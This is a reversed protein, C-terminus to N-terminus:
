KNQYSLKKELPRRAQQKTRTDRLKRLKMQKDHMTETLEALQRKAVEEDRPTYHTAVISMQTNLQQISEQLTRIDCYLDQDENAKRMEVHILLSALELEESFHNKLSVSRYGTNLCPIPIVAQALDVPDGFVDLDQIVFRLMTCEPNNVDFDFKSLWVPNYGNTEVQNTKFKNQDSPMGVVELEVLPSAVGRGHKIIHRAGIITIIVTIPETKHTESLFPNFDNQRLLCDPMLVYGCKGNQLFKGENLQMSRDPTQYNLAVLQSGACWMPTPDYNTSELRRGNPYVRSMKIRSYIVFNRANDKNKVFREMKSEVFSSMQNFRGKTPNEIEFDKTPQCYIVIDSMEQAIGQIKQQKNVEAIATTAKTSATEIAAKWETAAELTDAAVEITQQGVTRTAPICIQLVFLHSGPVTVREVSCRAINISGQEVDGMESNEQKDDTIEEVHNAPFWRRMLRGYDGCWWGGEHKEVNTIVAGRVFSLEDQRMANYDYLARVSIAKAHDDNLSFYVSTYISNDPEEGIQKLIEDNIAYKLKMRRYLPNQEYYSILETMTDFAASGITFQGAERDEVFRCHRIKGEARFSIVWSIKQDRSIPEKRQEKSGLGSPRVLFAGDMRVRKLLEEAQKCSCNPHFWAKREHSDRRPVPLCLIQEFVPSRLPFSKYNEVLEYISDFLTQDTLYYKTKGGVSKTHIRVHNYKHDRTFSLSYDGAFTASERVLFAGDVDQYDVLLAEADTRGGMLKGHFWNQKLHMETTPLEHDESNETDGIQYDQSTFSLKDDNLVFFHPSWKKTIPDQMHLLGNMLSHTLDDNPNDWDAESKISINPDSDSQLRKHKVIIKRKLQNPSPLCDGLGEIPETLLMDGFVEKFYRAQFQQQPVECHQEISLILPFESAVFAHEKIANVVDTFKIKSTLTKGHFIIPYDTAEWCDLEVCRCGQRLARVYAEVSSESMYQNGTLYTNHSSAIWYHNIPQDMNQYITLSEENFASNRKSFLFNVFEQITLIPQRPDRQGGSHSVFDWVLTAIADPIRQDKQEDRFFAQLERFTVRSKDASYKYFIRGITDDYVTHLYMNVFDDWTLVGQHSSDFKQVIQRYRSSNERHNVQQFFKKVEVGGIVSNGRDLAYFKKRLWRNILLQTDFNAPQLIHRLAEVWADREERRMAAVSLTKLRFESGYLIIFCCQPDVMRIDEQGKKFDLSDLTERIERIERIDVTDEAIARGRSPFPFQLIEFTSLRLTFIRKEPPRRRRHYFKFMVTGSELAKM